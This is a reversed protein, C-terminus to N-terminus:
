CWKINSCTECSTIILSIDRIPQTPDLHYVQSHWSQWSGRRPDSPLQVPLCLSNESHSKHTDKQTITHEMQKVNLNTDRNALIPCHRRSFRGSRWPCPPLTEQHPLPTIKQSATNKWRHMHTNLKAELNTELDDGGVLDGIRMDVIMRHHSVQRLEWFSHTNRMSM